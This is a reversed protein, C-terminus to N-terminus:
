HVITVDTASGSDTRNETPPPPTVDDDHLWTAAAATPPTTTPPPLLPALTATFAASVAILGIIRPNLSFRLARLDVHPPPARLSPACTRPLARDTSRIIPGRPACCWRNAARIGCLCRTAATHHVGSECDGCSDCIDVIRIQSCKSSTIDSRLRSNVTKHVYFKCIPPETPERCWLKERCICWFKTYLELAM